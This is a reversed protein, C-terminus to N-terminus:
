LQTNKKPKITQKPKIAHGVFNFLHDPHKINFFIFLFPNVQLSQEVPCIMGESMLVNFVKRQLLVAILKRLFAPSSM